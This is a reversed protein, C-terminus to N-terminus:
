FEDPSGYLALLCSVPCLLCSASRDVEGIMEKEFFSFKRGIVSRKYLNIPKLCASVTMAHSMPYEGWKFRWHM